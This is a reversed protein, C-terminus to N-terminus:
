NIKARFNLIVNKKTNRYFTSNESVSQSKRVSNKIRQLYALTYTYM